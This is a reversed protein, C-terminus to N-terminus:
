FRKVVDKRGRRISQPSFFNREIVRLRELVQDDIYAMAAIRQAGPHWFLHVVTGSMRLDLLEADARRVLYHGSKDNSAM